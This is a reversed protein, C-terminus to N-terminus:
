AKHRVVSFWHTKYLSVKGFKKKFAFLPKDSGGLDAFKYGVNKLRDLDSMLAVEGLGWHAYSHLAVAHYYGGDSNIIPWGASFAEAIGDVLIVNGGDTGVFKNDILAHYEAPYARHKAPRNGQWLDIIKHLREGDADCAKIFEVKHERFFRSKANRMPKGESGPHAPDYAELDLVPWIFTEAVSRARMSSPLIKILRLRTESTLELFVKKMEQKRLMEECFAAVMEARAEKPAMPEAFLYAEDDGMQALLGWEGAAFFVNRSEPEESHLFHEINHEAAWGHLELSREILPRAETMNEHTELIM